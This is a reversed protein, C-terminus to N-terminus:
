INQIFRPHKCVRFNTLIYGLLGTGPALGLLSISHGLEMVPEEKSEQTESFYTGYHNCAVFTPVTLFPPKQM